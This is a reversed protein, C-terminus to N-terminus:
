RITGPPKALEHAGLGHTLEDPTRYWIGETPWNTGALLAVRVAVEYPQHLDVIDIRELPARNVFGAWIANAMEPDLPSLSLGYIVLRSAEELEGVARRYSAAHVKQEDRGRFQDVSIESPLYLGHGSDIAGHLHLVVCDDAIAQAARDVTRDWNTTIVVPQASLPVLRSFIEKFGDRISLTSSRLEECIASRVENYSDRLKPFDEHEDATGPHKCFFRMLHVVRAMEFNAFDAKHPM